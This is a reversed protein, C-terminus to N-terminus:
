YPGCPIQTTSGVPAALVVRCPSVWNSPMEASDAPARACHAWRTAMGGLPRALAWRWALCSVAM